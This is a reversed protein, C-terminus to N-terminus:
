VTGFGVARATPSGLDLYAIRQVPILVRRGKADSLDLLSGSELADRLMAAIEEPTSDVEISVERPVDSIAIKIEM